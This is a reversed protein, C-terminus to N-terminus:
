SGYKFYNLILYVCLYYKKGVPFEHFDLIVIENTNQLFTRVDDLVTQLPHISILGHNVWWETDRDEYYAARIDLYRVGYILQSLINEEKLCVNYEQMFSLTVLIKSSM